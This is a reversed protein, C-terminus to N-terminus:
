EPSRSSPFDQYSLVSFIELNVTKSLICVLNLIFRLGRHRTYNASHAKLVRRSRKDRYKSLTAQVPLDARALEGKNKQTSM